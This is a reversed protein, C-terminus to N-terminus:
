CGPSTPHLLVVYGGGRKARPTHGPELRQKGVKARESKRIAKLLGGGQDPRGFPEVEGVGTPRRQFDHNNSGMRAFM